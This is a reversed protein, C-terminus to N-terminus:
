GSTRKLEAAREPMLQVWVAEQFEIDLFALCYKIQDCVVDPREHNDTYSTKKYRDRKFGLFRM